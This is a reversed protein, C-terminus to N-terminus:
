ALCLASATQDVLNIAKLAPRFYLTCRLGRSNVTSMFRETWTCNWCSCPQKQFVTSNWAVHKPELANHQLAIVDLTLLSTNLQLCYFTVFRAVALEITLLLWLWLVSTSVLLWLGM